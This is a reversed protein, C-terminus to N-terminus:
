LRVKLRPPGLMLPRHPGLRVRFILLNYLNYLYLSLAAHIYRHPKTSTSLARVRFRTTQCARPRHGLSNPAFVQDRTATRLVAEEIKTTSSRSRFRSENGNSYNRVNDSRHSKNGICHDPPIMFCFSKALRELRMCRAWAGDGM